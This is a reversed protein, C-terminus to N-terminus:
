IRNGHWILARLSAKKSLYADWKLERIQESHQRIKYWSTETTVESKSNVIDFGTGRLRKVKTVRLILM